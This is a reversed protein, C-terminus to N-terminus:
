AATRVDGLPHERDGAPLQLVRASGADARGEHIAVGPKGARHRRLRRLLRPTAACTPNSLLLQFFYDRKLKLRKTGPPKLTPKIPYVHVAKGLVHSIFHQENPGLTVWDKYDTSLDIEEASWFSAEAQKYMKWVNHQQVPFLCFRDPNDQLM